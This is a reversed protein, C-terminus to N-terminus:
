FHYSAYVAFILCAVPLVLGGALFACSVWFLGWNFPEKMSQKSM